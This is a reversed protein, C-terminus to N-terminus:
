RSLARKMHAMNSRQHLRMFLVFPSRLYSEFRGLFHKTRQLIPLGIYPIRVSNALSALNGPALPTPLTAPSPTLSAPTINRTASPDTPRHRIHLYPPTPWM